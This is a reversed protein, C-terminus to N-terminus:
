FYIKLCLVWLLFFDLRFRFRRGGGVFFQRIRAFFTELLQLGIMM